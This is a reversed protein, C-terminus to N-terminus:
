EIKEENLDENAEEEARVGMAVLLRKLAEEDMDALQEKTVRNNMVAIALAEKEETNLKDLAGGSIVYASTM